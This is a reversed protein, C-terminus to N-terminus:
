NKKAKDEKDKKEDLFHRCNNFNFIYHLEKEVLRKEFTHYDIVKDNEFMENLWIQVAEISDTMEYQEYLDIFTDKPFHKRLDEDEEAVEDLTLLSINTPFAFCFYLFFKLDLSDRKLAGDDSLL